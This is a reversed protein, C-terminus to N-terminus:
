YNAALIRAVRSGIDGGQAVYGSGFGLQVMLTNIMRTADEVRFNKDMPPKSSFAWGTLSPIIIHYPLTEPTYRNKLISLIELFELFSGPWGHVMVVPVADSQTSFLGVFHIDFDGATDYIPMTWHNYSNIHKEAARWDFKMWAAKADTLWQHTVGYNHEKQTSEYNPPAIKGLEVLLKLEDVKEDDISVQFPKPKTLAGSPIQAYNDAM